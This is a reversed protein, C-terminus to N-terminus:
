HRGPREFGPLLFCPQNLEDKICAAVVSDVDGTIGPVLRIGSHRVMMAAPESIAGCILMNIELSRLQAVRVSVVGRDLGIESRRCVVNEEVDFVSLSAAFDFVTSVCVGDVPVGIKIHEKAAHQKIKFRLVGNL